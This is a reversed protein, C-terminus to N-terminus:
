APRNSAIRPPVVLGRPTKERTLVQAIRRLEDPWIPKPLYTLKDAPGAVLLFDEYAYDSYGTVIVILVTRDRSSIRKATEYGDIGPMGIDLLVVDPQFEEAIELAELGDAATRVDYGELDLMLALSQAGDRNDDAILIRASTRAPTPTIAEITTAVARLAPVPAPLNLQVAFCSGHGHGDSHVSIRGGHMEVLRKALTMGIGLGVHADRTGRGSRTFMDFVQPLLEDTIGAGQDTFTVSVRQEEQRASIHIETGPESFKSSNNLIGAFVQVLRRTDVNLWLPNPPLELRLHQQRNELASRNADIARHLLTELTFRERRLELQGQAVHTVDALDDILRSLQTVQREIIGRAARSLAQDNDAIRLVHVASRMAALPNRMEHALTAFFDKRDRERERLLAALQDREDAIALLRTHLDDEAPAPVPLETAM